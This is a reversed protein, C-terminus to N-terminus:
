LSNLITDLEELSGVLVQRKKSGDQPSVIGAAELQNMVRASKAFGMGMRTQLYSTSANQTSVVLKAAEEFREDLDSADVGSGGGAGKEAPPEPLYYPINYCQGYKTEEAIFETVRGVEESEILGCQVRECDLGGSFLMDGRGILKEAGPSDIITMSDQRSSTRFAIRMPFNSKIIGSVVDVSPRQTALIVHIGAARGKQALRIICNTISRSAAKEEPSGGTVLTLDAYEDVVVVLYPFFRHGHEPNLKRDKFKDNYLTVKNIGARSMLEYRDDM